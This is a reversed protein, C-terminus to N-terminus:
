QPAQPVPEVRIWLGAAPAGSGTAYPSPLPTGPDALAIWQGIRGYVTAHGSDEGTGADVREAARPRLDIAVAAGAVWIRATVDAVSDFHVAGSVAAGPGAAAGTGSSGKPATAGASGARGSGGAAGKADVGFWLSQTSPLSISLPEGELIEVPQPRAGAHTSLVQGNGYSDAPPPRSTSLTVSGHPAALQPRDDAEPADSLTVRLPRPPRDAERILRVVRALDSPAARVGLQTGAGSLTAPAVAPRLVSILSEASRHQLQVTTAAPQARGAAAGLALSLALLAQLRATM